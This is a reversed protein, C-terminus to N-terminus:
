FWSSQMLWHSELIEWSWMNVWCTSSIGQSLHCMNVFCGDFFLAGWGDDKLSGFLSVVKGEGLRTVNRTNHSSSSSAISPVRVFSRLSFANRLVLHDWTTRIAPKHQPPFFRTDPSLFKSVIASVLSTTSVELSDISDYEQYGFGPVLQNNQVLQYRCGLQHRLETVVSM